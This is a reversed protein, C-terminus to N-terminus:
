CRIESRSALYAAILSLCSGAACQQLYFPPSPCSAPGNTARCTGAASDHRGTQQFPKGFTRM